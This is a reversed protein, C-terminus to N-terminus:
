ADKLWARAAEPDEFYDTVFKAGDGGGAPRYDLGAPLLFAFRKLGAANYAPIIEEQRWTDLEPTMRFDFTRVDVLTGTASQDAIHKALRELALKFDDETMASTTGKWDLEIANTKPDHSMSWFEHNELAM